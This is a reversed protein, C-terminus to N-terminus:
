LAGRRSLIVLPTRLIIMLDLKFSQEEVYKVDLEMMEDFGLTSRGSVQWLGTLGPKADLRRHYWPKYMELEYPIAPRPGVLSMDGKLVNFLQPLEDISTKRIFKGVRTVRPDNKIKYLPNDTDGHNIKHSDGKILDTVYKRHIMDDAKYQMSRFKYFIFPVGKKGLRVQTFFVPGPSDIKIVLATMLMLPSLLLIGIISGLIDFGRKLLLFFSNSNVSSELFVPSQDQRDQNETSINEFVQDPYTAIFNQHFLRNDGNIIKKIVQKAGTESTDPLLVCIQNEGLYGLVDTDRIKGDLYKLFDYKVETSKENDFALIAISLPMKTREARRKELRLLELFMSKPYINYPTTRM